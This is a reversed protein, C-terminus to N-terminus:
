DICKIHVFNPSFRVLCGTPLFSINICVHKHKIRVASQHISPDKYLQLSSLKWRFTLGNGESTYVTIYDCYLKSLLRFPRHINHVTGPCLIFIWFATDTNTRTSYKYLKHKPQTSIILHVSFAFNQRRYFIWPSGALANWQVIMCQTYIQPFPRGWFICKNCFNYIQDDPSNM